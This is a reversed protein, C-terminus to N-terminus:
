AADHFIIGLTHRRGRTLPSVGHRLTVRSYGRAGRRPRHNVAIVAADGQKLSIVSGKSQARPRQEVILLEGGEFDQEPANLLVIVQLPFREAGYLDQHLCNYDGAGYQLLLPTPKTQGAEHCRQLFEDHTAPYRVAIGMQANWRNAIEALQPYLASRLDAITNPLPYAFYKYEGRGFGHRAMVIRSRFPENAEYLGSIARCEKPTLLPGVVACGHADLEAAVDTWDIAACDRAAASAAGRKLEAVKM